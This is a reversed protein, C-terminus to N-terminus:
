VVDPPLIVTADKEMRVLEGDVYTVIYTEGDERLVNGDEDTKESYPTVYLTVEGETPVGKITLAYLYKTRLEDATYESTM